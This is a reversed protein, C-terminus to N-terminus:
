RIKRMFGLNLSAAEPWLNSIDNSGGLELSILHDVEFEGATRSLIGYERYVQDKEQTPVNRVSKAYGSTCIQDRTVNPFVAGPTCSSDPLAGNVKCDTTKTQVGLTASGSAEPNSTVSPISTSQPIQAMQKSTQAFIWFFVVALVLFLLM